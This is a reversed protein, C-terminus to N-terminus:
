ATGEMGSPTGLSRPARRILGFSETTDGRFVRIRETESTERILGQRRIGPRRGQFNAAPWSVLPGRTWITAPRRLRLCICAADAM